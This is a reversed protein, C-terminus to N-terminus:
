IGIATFLHLYVRYTTASLSNFRSVVLSVRSWQHSSSLPGCKIRLRTPPRASSTPFVLLHHRATKNEHDTLSFGHNQFGHFFLKNNVV